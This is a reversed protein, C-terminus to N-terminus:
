KACVTGGADGLLLLLQTVLNANTRHERDDDRVVLALCSTPTVMIFLIFVHLAAPLCAPSSHTGSVDDQNRIRAAM